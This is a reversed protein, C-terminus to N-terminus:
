KKDLQYFSSCLGLPQKAGSARGAELQQLENGVQTRIYDFDARTFDRENAYKYEPHCAFKEALSYNQKVGIGNGYILALLRYGRGYNKEIDEEFRVKDEMELYACKRAQTHNIAATFGFFLDASDCSALTRADDASPLDAPPYPLNQVTKCIPDLPFEAFARCASALALFAFIFLKM